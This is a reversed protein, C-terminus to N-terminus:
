AGVTLFGAAEFIARAAPSALFQLFRAAEAERPGRVVAAPYRIAPVDAAPVRYAVVVDAATRADTAFVVGADV